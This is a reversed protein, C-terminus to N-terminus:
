SSAPVADDGGSSTDGDDAAGEPEEAVSHEGDPRPTSLVNLDINSSSFSQTLQLQQVAQRTAETQWHDPGLAESVISHALRMRELAETNHGLKAHAVGINFITCATDAHREGLVRRRVMLAKQLVPIAAEYDCQQLFLEGMNNLVASSELDNLRERTGASSRRRQPGEATTSKKDKAADAVADATELHDLAQKLTEM